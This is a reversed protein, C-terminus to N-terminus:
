RKSPSALAPRRAPWTTSGAIPAPLLCRAKLRSAEGAPGIEIGALKVSPFPLISLNIPGNVRVQLGILRSAETEFFARHESWTVFYPGVLAAILALIIAIALGLLTTQM